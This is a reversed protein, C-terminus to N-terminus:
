IEGRYSKKGLKRFLLKELRTLSDSRSLIIEFSEGRSIKLIKLCKQREDQLQQLKWIQSQYIVEPKKTQYQSEFLKQRHIVEPEPRHDLSQAVVLHKESWSKEPDM